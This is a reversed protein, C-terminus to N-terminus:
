RKWINLKRYLKRHFLEDRAWFPPWKSIQSTNFVAEIHGWIRFSLGMNHWFIKKWPSPMMSLTVPHGWLKGRYEHKPSTPEPLLNCPCHRTLLHLNWLWRELNYMCFCSRLSYCKELNCTLPWCWLSLPHGQCKIPWLETLRPIILVFCFSFYSITIAINSCCGLNPKVKLKWFGRIGCKTAKNSPQAIPFTIKAASYYTVNCIIEFVIIKSITVADIIDRQSKSFKVFQLRRPHHYWTGCELKWQM